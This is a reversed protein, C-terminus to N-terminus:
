EGIHKRLEEKLLDSIVKGDVRGRVEKMVVGMIPGAARMGQNAVFDARDELVNRIIVTLEDESISPAIKEVAEHVGVGGAVARLVDPIAEKAVKGGEVLHLVEIIADDTLEGVPVGDRRLERLTSLLTRAALNPKIGGSVAREFLQVRVSYAMQKSLAADLKFDRIFRETKATILEPVELSDWFEETVPVPFVDTEPYMRAAGPLPRMYATSGEELMKRTEEPVGNLALEARRIVQLIACASRKKTDAVLVVCDDPAAKVYNRLALVEEETM